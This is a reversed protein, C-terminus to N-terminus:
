LIFVKCFALDTFTPNIVGRQCGLKGQRRSLLSPHWSPTIFGVNVSKANQLNYFLQRAVMVDYHLAMNDFRRLTVDFGVNQQNKCLSADSVM